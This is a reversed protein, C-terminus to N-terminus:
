GNINMPYELLLRKAREKTREPTLTSGDAVDALFWRVDAPLRRDEDTLYGYKVLLEKAADSDAKHEYRYYREFLFKQIDM